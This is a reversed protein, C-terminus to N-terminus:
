IKKFTYTIIEQCKIGGDTYEDVESLVQKSNNVSKLTFTLFDNEELLAVTLKEGMLTWNISSLYSRDSDYQVYVGTGGNKFEFVFYWNSTMDESGSGVLKGGEYGQYDMKTLQWKGILSVEDKQCSVLMLVAFSVLTFFLKEYFIM